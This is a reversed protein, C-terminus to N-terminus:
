ELNDLTKGRYEKCINVYVHKEIKGQQYLLEILKLAAFIEKSTATTDNRRDKELSM